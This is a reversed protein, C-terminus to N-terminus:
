RPSAVVSNTLVRFNQLFTQVTDIADKVEQNEDRMGAVTTWLGIPIGLVIMALFVGGLAMLLKRERPELKAFRDALTM